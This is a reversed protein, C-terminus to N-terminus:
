STRLPRPADLVHPQRADLQLQATQALVVRLHQVQQARHLADHAVCGGARHQLAPRRGQLRDCRTCRGSTTHLGTQARQQKAAMESTARGGTQLASGAFRTNQCTKQATRLSESESLDAPVEAGRASLMQTPKLHVGGWEAHRRQLSGEPLAKLMAKRPVWQPRSLKAENPQLQPISINISGCSCPCALEHHRDHGILFVRVQGSLPEAAPVGPRFRRGQGLIRGHMALHPAQTKPCQMEGGAYGPVATLKSMCQASAYAMVPTSPRDQMNRSSGLGRRAYQARVWLRPTCAFISPWSSLNCLKESRSSWTRCIVKATCQRSFTLV